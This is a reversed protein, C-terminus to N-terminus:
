LMFERRRGDERKTCNSCKVLIFCKSFVAQGAVRFLLTFRTSDIQPKSPLPFSLSFFGGREEPEERDRKAKGMGRAECGSGCMCLPLAGAKSERRRWDESMHDVHMCAAHADQEM